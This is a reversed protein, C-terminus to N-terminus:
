TGNNVGYWGVGIADSVNDSEVTIGFEEKVWDKTRQKRAKRLHEKYWSEKRNPHEERVASKEAATWAKNGIYSQWSTPPVDNVKVGPKIFPSVAAGFAYALLIVTKKNQIFTAAEFFVEDIDKFYDQDLSANIVRNANNMRHFMDGKGFQIEGWNILKEDEFVAFALSNTSCDIGLIRKAM